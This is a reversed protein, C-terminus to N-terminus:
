RFLVQTRCDEPKVKTPDDLYLNYYEKAAPYDKTIKKCVKGLDKYPGRHEFCQFDGQIHVVDERAQTPKEIELGIWGTGFMKGSELIPGSKENMKLGAAPVATYLKKYPVAIPIFFIYFGKLTFFYGDVTQKSYSMQGSEEQPNTKSEQAPGQM